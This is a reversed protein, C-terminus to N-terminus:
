YGFYDSIRSVKFFRNITAGKPFYNDSFQSLFLNNKGESRFDKDM